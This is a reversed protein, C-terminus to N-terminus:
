ANKTHTLNTVIVFTAGDSTVIVSVEATTTYNDKDFLNQLAKLSSVTKDYQDDDDTDHADVFAAKSVDIDEVEGVTLLNEYLEVYDGNVIVGKEDDWVLSEDTIDDATTEELEVYGDSNTGATYFGRSLPYQSEDVKLTKSTGDAYYVKQNRYGDGMESSESMVFLQTKSDFEVNDSFDDSILIVYQALTKDAKTIIIASAIDKVAVGGTAATVKLDSGSNEVM